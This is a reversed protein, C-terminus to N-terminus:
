MNAYKINEVQSRIIYSNFQYWMFQNNASFFISFSLESVSTIKIHIQVALSFLFQWKINNSLSKTNYFITTVILITCVVPYQSTSNYLMKVTLIKNYHFLENYSVFNLIIRFHTNDQIIEFVKTEYDSYSIFQQFM